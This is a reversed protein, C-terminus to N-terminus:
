CKSLFERTKDTVVGTINLVPRPFHGYNCTGHPVDRWPWTICDGKEWQLLLNGHQWMQGQKQDDLFIILRMVDRQDLDATSAQDYDGRQRKLVGGFNDLHWYFCQGPMQVDFKVIGPEAFGFDNVIRELDGVLEPRLLRNAITYGGDIDYGWRRFDNEEWNNNNELRTQKRKDFTAPATQTSLIEVLESWDGEFRKIPIVAPCDTDFSDLDSKNEDFHYNSTARCFDYLSDYGDKSVPPLTKLKNWQELPNNNYQIKYFEQM